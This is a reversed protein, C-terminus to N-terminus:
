EGKKYLDKDPPTSNFIFGADKGVVLVSNGNEDTMFQNGEVRENNKPIYINGEKFSYTKYSLLRFNIQENELLEDVIRNADTYVIRFNDEYLLHISDVLVLKGDISLFYDKTFAITIQYQQTGFDKYFNVGAQQLLKPQNKDFSHAKTLNLDNSAFSLNSIHCDFAENNHHEIIFRRQYASQVEEVGYWLMMVIQHLKKFDGFKNAGSYILRRKKQLIGKMRM